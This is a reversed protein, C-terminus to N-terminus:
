RTSGLSGRKTGTVTLHDLPRSEMSHPSSFSPWGTGEALYYDDARAHDAEVYNRAAAPNGRYVKM